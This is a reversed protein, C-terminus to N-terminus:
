GAMTKRLSSPMCQALGCGTIAAFFVGFGPIQLSFDVSSHVFGLLGVSVGIIPIYRDRRRHLSGMLLHYIYWLCTAVILMATPLGLEVALELPTSHARDWIGLSGQEALRYAPFANEFNGFGIGFLPHDRIIAFSTRYAELRQEDVLGYTVIRGAVAGGVLQLLLLCAVAASALLGWRRGQRLRLPALYLVGALLFACISLLLGARSGTMATAVTCATFGGALSIPSSLYYSLLALPQRSPPYPPRDGRHVFRLLPVLFLLACSGWFTAATNRNVFTGTAFGIYAEKKRFLLSDPDGVQILIGYLAYLCGSWALIRLLRRAARADAALFVARIFALSFLLSYGFALWPGTATMSIRHPVSIGLIDGPLQWAPDTRGIPPDPWMQLTVVAGVMVLSVFLPLLLRFDERSAMGLDATLLSIALLVTWICIWLGDTSGLPLPALVFVFIAIFRSIASLGKM